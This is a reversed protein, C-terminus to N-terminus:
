FDDKDDGMAKAFEEKNLAAADFELDDIDFAKDVLNNFMHKMLDPNLKISIMDDIMSQSANVGGFVIGILLVDNMTKPDYKDMTKELAVTKIMGDKMCERVFENVEKPDLESNLAETFEKSNNNFKLRDM